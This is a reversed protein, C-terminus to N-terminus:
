RACLLHKTLAAPILEMKSGLRQQPLQSPTKNAENQLSSEEPEFPWRNSSLCPQFRGSCDRKLSSHSKCDRLPRPGVAVAAASERARIEEPSRTCFWADGAQHSPRLWM